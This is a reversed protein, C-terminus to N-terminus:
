IRCMLGPVYESGIFLQDAALDGILGSMKDGISIPRMLDICFDSKADIIRDVRLKRFYGSRKKGFIVLYM